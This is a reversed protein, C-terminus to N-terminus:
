TVLLVLTSAKSTWGSPVVRLRRTNPSSAPSMPPSMPVYWMNPRNNGSPPIIVFVLSMACLASHLFSPAPDEAAVANVRDFLDPQGADRALALAADRGKEILTLYGDVCAATCYRSVQMPTFGWIRAGERCPLFISKPHRAQQLWFACSLFRSNRIADGASIGGLLPAVLRDAAERGLRRRAFDAISEDDGADRKAPVLMELAM